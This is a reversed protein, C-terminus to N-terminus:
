PDNLSTKRNTLNASAAEVDELPLLVGAFVITHESRDVQFASALEKDRRDAARFRLPEAHASTPIADQSQDLCPTTFLQADITHNVLGFCAVFQM